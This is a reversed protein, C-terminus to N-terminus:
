SIARWGDYIDKLFKRTPRQSRILKTILHMKDAKSLSDVTLMEKVAASALEPYLSFFHRHSSLLPAMGEFTKLDKMIISRGILEGYYSLAERSYDGYQRARLVTEAAMMGSLLALNAGESFVANVMGAADGAVLVGDGYLKPMGRYGGEPILHASYERRGAGDILRRVQPQGKFRELLSYVSGARDVMDKLIVGVGISVTDRNTYIFGTGTFGGTIEGVVEFAAGSDTDLNFRDEIKERPLALVEKVAVAVAEPKVGQSLGAKEALFPNVGEALIVVGAELDGEPRGTHVGTVRGGDWLLDEVLTETIIVAGKASAQAALWKDFRSRFVSFSNYPEAGFDTSEYAAKLVSDGTALWIERRNIHRELPAEKWFDPVVRSTPRSFILGGMMNKSGPWDGREIVVVSAGGDALTYAASLGAPGGGVVIADIKGTSPNGRSRNADTNGRSRDTSPNSRDRNAGQNGSGGGPSM